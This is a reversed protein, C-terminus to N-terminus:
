IKIKVLLHNNAELAERWGNTSNIGCIIMLVKYKGKRRTMQNLLIYEVEFEQPGTGV